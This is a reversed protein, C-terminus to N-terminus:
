WIHLDHGVLCAVDVEFSYGQGGIELAGGTDGSFFFTVVLCGRWGEGDGSSMVLPLGNDVVGGGSGRFRPSMILSGKTSDKDVEDDAASNCCCEEVDNDIGARVEPRKKGGSEM